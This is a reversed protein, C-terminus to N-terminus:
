LPLTIRVTTGETPSSEIELKGDLAEARERLNRLGLGPGGAAVTDFGQGDDDIVLVAQGDIEHLSVRCTTAAAHRTVNSLSERVLQIVDAARSALSAATRPDVDVVITVETERGSDAAVREIAQALHRDALIGPGLGFIYNRLDRIANDIDAVTTDLQKELEPDGARLAAAQLHMGVAFLAQIVGDHLERGIREREEM